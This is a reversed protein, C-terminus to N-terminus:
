VGDYNLNLIPLLIPGIKSHNVILNERDWLWSRCGAPQRNNPLNTGTDIEVVLRAIEIM